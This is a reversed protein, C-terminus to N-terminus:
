NTQRITHSIKTQVVILHQVLGAFSVFSIKGISDPPLSCLDVYADGVLFTFYVEPSRCRCLAVVDARASNRIRPQFLTVAVVGSYVKVM